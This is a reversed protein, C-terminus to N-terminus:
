KAHVSIACPGLLSEYLQFLQNGYEALTPISAPVGSARRFDARLEEDSVLKQLQGALQRWDNREVIFGNVGDRVVEEANGVRTAICPLRMELAEVLSLSCAESRSPLVFVDAAALILAVNQVQGTFRVVAGLNESRVLSELEARCKEEHPATISGVLMLRAQPVRACVDRFALLLLDWGKVAVAHGVAIVIIESEKYGLEKRIRFRDYPGAPMPARFNPQILVLHESIGMEMLDDRVAKSVALIRTAFMAATRTSLAIKERLTPPRSEEFYVNMNHDTWLRVPVRALFAGILPSTYISHCHIVDVALSRCLSYVKRVCHWDFHGKPRPVFIPEIGARRIMELWSLDEPPRELVLFCRWGGKVTAIQMDRWTEVARLSKFHSGWYM